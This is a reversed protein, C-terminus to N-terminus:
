KRIPTYKCHHKQLSVFGPKTQFSRMSRSSSFNGGFPNFLAVLLVCGSEQRRKVQGDFHERTYWTVEVRCLRSLLGVCARHRGVLGSYDRVSVIGLMAAGPASGGSTMYGATSIKAYLEVSVIPSLERIGRAM